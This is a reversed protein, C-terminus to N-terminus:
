PILDQSHMDAWTWNMCNFIQDRRWYRPNLDVSHLTILIKCVEGMNNLNRDPQIQSRFGSKNFWFKFVDWYLSHCEVRVSRIIIIHPVMITNQVDIVHPGHLLCVYPVPRSILFHYAWKNRSGIVHLEHCSVQFTAHMSWWRKSLLLRSGKRIFFFVHM